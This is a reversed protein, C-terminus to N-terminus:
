CVERCQIGNVPATNRDAGGRETGFLHLTIILRTPILARFVLFFCLMYVATYAIGFRFFGSKTRIEEPVKKNLQTGLTWFWGLFAGIFIVEVFVTATFMLAALPGFLLLFLQWARLQLFFKM